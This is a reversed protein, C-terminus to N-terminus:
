AIFKEMNNSSMPIIIQKRSLEKTTINVKPKSRQNSNFIINHIESVKSPSLKSFANKIKIINNINSISAKAYSKINLSSNSKSAQNNKFSKSKEL